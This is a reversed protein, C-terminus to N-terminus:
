GVSNPAQFFSEHPHRCSHDLCNRPRSAVRSVGSVGPGQFDDADATLGSFSPQRHPWCQSARSPGALRCSWVQRGGL